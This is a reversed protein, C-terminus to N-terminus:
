GENNRQAGGLSWVTVPVPVFYATTMSCCTCVTCYSCSRDDVSKKFFFFFGCALIDVSWLSACLPQVASKYGILNCIRFATDLGFCLLFCCYLFLSYFWSRIMAAAVSLPIEEGISNIYVSYARSRKYLSLLPVWFFCLTQCADWACSPTKM